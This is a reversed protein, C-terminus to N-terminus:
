ERSKKKLATEVEVMTSDFIKEWAPKNDPLRLDKGDGFSKDMVYKAANFAIGDIPSHIAMHTMRLAALPLAEKLIDTAMRLPDEVKQLARRVTLQEIAEDAIWERRDVM